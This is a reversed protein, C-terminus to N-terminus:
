WFWWSLYPEKTKSIHRWWLSHLAFVLAMFSLFFGTSDIVSQDLRRLLGVSAFILLLMAILFGYATESTEQCEEGCHPCDFIFLPNRRLNRGIKRYVGVFM